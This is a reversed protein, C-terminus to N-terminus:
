GFSLDAELLYGAMLARLSPYGHLWPPRRRQLEAVCASMNAPSIHYGSFLIQRGPYNYRWFPPSTQQSPVLSRGGFYGCWTNFPLGHWRRYRFWTAWQEQVARRTAAFHLGSGTTGSTHAVVHERPPISQSVPDSGIRQVEQKTLIPLCRLDELTRIDEVSVGLAQFHRRYFPVSEACHRVFSKLRQDRFIRIKEVPWFNRAEADQLMRSFADGFRFHRLRLGEFSCSANQLILPLRLYPGERDLM